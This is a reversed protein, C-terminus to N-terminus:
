TVSSIVRLIVEVVQINQPSLPLTGPVDSKPTRERSQVEDEASPRIIFTVNGRDASVIDVPFKSAM